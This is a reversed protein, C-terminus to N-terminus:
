EPDSPFHSIVTTLYFFTIYTNVWLVYLKRALNGQPKNPEELARDARYPLETIRQIIHYREVDSCVISRKVTNFLSLLETSWGTSTEGRATISGQGAYNRINEKPGNVPINTIIVVHCVEITVLAKPHIAQSLSPNSLLVAPSPSTELTTKRVIRPPEKRSRPVAITFHWKYRRWNIHLRCVCVKHCFYDWTRLHTFSARVRLKERLGTVQVKDEETTGWTGTNLPFRSPETQITVLSHAPRPLLLPEIRPLPFHHKGKGFSGSRNQPKVMIRNLPSHLTERPSFHGSRSASWKCGGLASTALSQLMNWRERWYTKIGHVPVAKAKSKILGQYQCMLSYQTQCLGKIRARNWFRYSQEKSLATNPRHVAKTPTSATEPFTWTPPSVNQQCAASTKNWSEHTRPLLRISDLFNTINDLAVANKCDTRKCDHCPICAHHTPWTRSECTQNSCWLLNDRVTVLHQNPLFANIMLVLILKHSKELCKAGIIHLTLFRIFRM